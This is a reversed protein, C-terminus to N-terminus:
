SLGYRAQHEEWNDIHYLSGDKRAKEVEEDPDRNMQVAVTRKIAVYPDVPVPPMGQCLLKWEPFMGTWKLITFDALTAKDEDFDDEAHIRGVVKNLWELLIESPPMGDLAVSIRRKLEAISDSGDEAVQVIVTKTLYEAEAHITWGHQVKINLSTQPVDKQPETTVNDSEEVEEVERIEVPM